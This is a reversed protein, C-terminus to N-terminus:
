QTTESNMDIEELEAEDPSDEYSEEPYPYEETVEEDSLNESDEEISEDGYEDTYNGEYEEETYDDTYDETYNEEYEEETVYDSYDEEEYPYDYYDEYEESYDGGDFYYENDYLDQYFYNGADNYFLFAIEDESMPANVWSNVTEMVKYIPISFGITAEDGFRASNIAVVKETKKDLLPGGSSGPAIPASIQYIGDYTHPEIVFTRDVGSINGLTATNTFGQPSGLAIVEDGLQSPNQNELQMPTQGALEAVRVVAIDVDNSYGIVTGQYEKGESNQVAVYVSGEVVHSNTLIDGNKNILFGSGQGSDSLITFVKPQANAIIVSVAKSPEATKKTAEVPNTTKEVAPKVETQKEEVNAEQIKSVQQIPAKEILLFGLYSFIGICIISLCGILYIWIKNSKQKLPQGCSECYKSRKAISAGCKSCYMLM